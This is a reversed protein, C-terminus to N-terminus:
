RGLLKFDKGPLQFYVSAALAPDITALIPRDTISKAALMSPNM